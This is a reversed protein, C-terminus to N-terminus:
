QLHIWLKFANCAFNTRLIQWIWADISDTQTLKGAAVHVIADEM